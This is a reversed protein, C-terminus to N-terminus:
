NFNRIYGPLTPRRDNAFNWNWNDFDPCKKNDNM